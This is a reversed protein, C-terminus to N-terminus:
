INNHPGRFKDTRGEIRYWNVSSTWLKTPASSTILNTWRKQM